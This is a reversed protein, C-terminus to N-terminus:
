FPFIELCCNYLFDFCMKHETVGGGGFIMDHVRYPPFPWLGCIVIHRMRRARQIHLAVFVRESYTVSGINNGNTKACKLVSTVLHWPRFEMVAAFRFFDPVGTKTRMRFAYLFLPM